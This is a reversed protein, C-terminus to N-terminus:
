TSRSSRRPTSTRARGSAASGTPAPTAPRSTSSASSRRRRRADALDDRRRAPVGELGGAVHRRGARGPAPTTYLRWVTSAPRRTSRRSSRARASSPGSSASTSRATSTSRRPLSRRATSGSRRAAEDLAVKGTQQDLAVVKGDLQGLYVRGDGIAVGRNLWGCCVTTIKQSIGSKYKWLIKGTSASVAFVDDEGTTVYIVGKYVVPQSEASYKAGVGSGDLHTMWVGKLQSVNSTDIQDLPSYRENLLNGGATPWDDTPLASLDAASFNPAKPIEAATTPGPTSATVTVTKATANSSTAYHGIVWGVFVGVAVLGLVLIILAGEAAADKGRSRKAM